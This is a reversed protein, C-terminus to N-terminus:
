LKVSFFSIMLNKEQEKELISWDFNQPKEPLGIKDILSQIRAYVYQLYPGTEGDLKLWEKMDFVVRTEIELEFIKQLDIQSVFDNIFFANYFELNFFIRNKEIISLNLFSKLDPFLPKEVLTDVSNNHVIFDNCHNISNSAIIVKTPNNLKILDDTNFIKIKKEFMSFNKISNHSIASQNTVWEIEIRPELKLIECLVIQAWRGGGIFRLKNSNSLM